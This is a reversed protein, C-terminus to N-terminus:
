SSCLNCHCEVQGLKLEKLKAILNKLDPAERVHSPLNNWLRCAIYSFSKNRFSTNPAPQNLRSGNGHLNYACNKLSFMNSRYNPYGKFMLILAQVLHRHKKTDLNYQSLIKEYSVFKPLNFITRLVYYNANELEDSLTQSIGILLPSCYDFHPLVYAKYLKLAIDSDIFNRIRHLTAIKAYIKSLVFKIHPSFTLKNDTAVGLLKLEDILQIKSSKLTLRYNYTSKGVIMAQTKTANITLYNNVLWQSLRATDSNIYFELTAPSNSAAYSTTDDAYLRLEM